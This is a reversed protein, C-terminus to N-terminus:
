KKSKLKKSKQRFLVAGRYVMESTMHDRTYQKRSINSEGEYRKKLEKLLKVLFNHSTVYYDWNQREKDTNKSRIKKKKSYFVGKNHNRFISQECFDVVEKSVNRLQLISEFYQTDNKKCYPCVTTKINFELEYDETIKPEESEVRLVARAKSTKGPKRYLEPIEVDVLSVKDIKYNRNFKINEEITKLIADNLLEFEKWKGKIQFHNSYACIVVDFSKLNDLIPNEKLYCDLCRGDIVAENKGCVVCKM